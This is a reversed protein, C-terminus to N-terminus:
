RERGIANDHYWVRINANEQMGSGTNPPITFSFNHNPGYFSAEKFM